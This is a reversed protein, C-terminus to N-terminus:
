VARQGLPQRGEGDTRVGVVGGGGHGEGPQGPLQEHQEPGDAPPNPQHPAVM